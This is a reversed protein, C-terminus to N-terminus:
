HRRRTQRGRDRGPSGIKRRVVPLWALGGGAQALITLLVILLGPVSVVAAPVAWRFVGLSGLVAAALQVDAVDVAVRGDSQVRYVLPLTTPATNLSPSGATPDTLGGPLLTPDPDVPGTPGPTALDGSAPAPSASATAAPNASTTPAITPTATATRAPTPAPTPAPTRAPTPASTPAPTPTPTPTPTPAPTANGGTVSIAVTQSSLKSTCNKNSYATVTWTYAGGVEEVVTIGTTVFESGLVSGALRDSGAVAAFMVVNSAVPPVYQWTKGSSAAVIRAASVSFASGVGVTVCGITDTLLLSTLSATVQVETSQGANISAPTRTAQWTSAAVAWGPVALLAVLAVAAALLPRAQSSRRRPIEM